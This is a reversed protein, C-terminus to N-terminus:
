RAPCGHGGLADREDVPVAASTSTTDEVVVDAAAMDDVGLDETVLDATRADGPARRLASRLDDGLEAFSAGAAGPRAGVLYYGPALPQRSAEAVLLARLRRRVRNRVM